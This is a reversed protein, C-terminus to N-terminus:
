LLLDAGVASQFTGVPWVEGERKVFAFLDAWGGEGLDGFIGAKARFVELLWWRGSEIFGLYSKLLASRPFNKRGLASSRRGM